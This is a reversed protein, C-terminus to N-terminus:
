IPTKLPNIGIKSLKKRIRRVFVERKTPERKRLELNQSSHFSTGKSVISDTGAYFFEYVPSHNYQVEFPVDISKGTPYYLKHIKGNEDTYNVLVQKDESSSYFWDFFEIRKRLFSTTRIVAAEYDVSHRTNYIMNDLDAEHFILSTISDFPREKLYKHCIPSITNLYCNKVNQQFDKHQCLHYLLGGSHAVGAKGKKDNVYIENYPVIPNKQFRPNNLSRDFDWAPGAYIKPDISDSDKYMMFSTWGGDPNRILENFLYYRAFSEVDIYESYHKGTEPNIGDPALIAHEMENYREAIYDIEQPSAYKPSRIRINDSADSVFGSISKNYQNLIGTNDLLYGGTIDNPNKNLLIGKRQIVQKKWGSGYWEYEELPKPNVLRNSQSLDTINLANRGVDVKNTMQYLGKYSNNIYFTLYTYNPAPLGFARALDLGIANRLHSEDYFNALLIYSKSKKLGLLRQKYPLKIAYPKKPEKFTTNGRTKIHDLEGEYLTDGSADILLAFAPVKNDQDALISDLQLPTMTIHLSPLEPFVQQEAKNCGYYTFVFLLIIALLVRKKM